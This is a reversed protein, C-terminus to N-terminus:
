QAERYAEDGKFFHFTFVTFISCSRSRRGNMVTECSRNRAKVFDTEDNLHCWRLTM